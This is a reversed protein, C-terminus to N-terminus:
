EKGLGERPSSRRDIGRVAWDMFGVVRVTFEESNSASVPTHSKGPVIYLGKAAQAAQYLKVSNTFAVKNDQKGHVFLIPRPALRAVDDIPRLQQIKVGSMREGLWLMLPAFPFAPLGTYALLGEALNDELSTYTGEAIIAQVQPLTVVARLVAAGGMSYGIMGIREANVEPRTSLYDFAGRVDAAETYGLTTIANGSKGHNRFDFLLAGYGNGILMAAQRLLQGRHSGLGHACVITAGDGNPDPPIFWGSLRIHDTSTFAVEQWQAIGFNAPTDHPQTRRPHLMAFAMLAPVGLGLIFIGLLLFFGLPLLNDLTLGSLLFVIARGSTRGAGRKRAWAIPNLRSVGM